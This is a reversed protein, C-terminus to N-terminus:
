ASEERTAVRGGDWPLWAAVRWGTGHPGAEVHGGYAAARERMGILGQGAGGTERPPLTGGRDTVEVVVGGDQRRLVLDVADTGPAHRLANTLSEQAIRYVALQLGTDAPLPTTLGTTRVPLGATRFRDVLAALDFAGPQPDLPADAGQLVGLIRRMDALASRGTGSLEDLAARTREPSRDLAAAAGDALAIMVSLSHAVVDHMERAIRTREDVLALRAQRERERAVANARDVLDALHLRRNRVTTGIAMAALAFVLMGTVDAVRGQPSFPADPVLVERDGIALTTLAVIGVTLGATSWAVRGPRLSAVAYLGLALGLDYGTLADAVVMTAAALVALVVAVAEPARRRAALAVAGALVLAVTAAVPRGSRPDLVAALVAPVAFWAVVVADMVGPHRRFFRRVGGVHQTDQLTFPIAPPGPPGPSTPPVPPAAPTVPAVPPAARVVRAVPPAARVVSSAAPVTTPHGRADDTTSM